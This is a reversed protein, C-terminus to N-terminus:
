THVATLFDTSTWPSLMNRGEKAFKNLKYVRGWRKGVLKWGEIQLSNKKYYLVYWGGRLVGTRLIVGKSAFRLTKLFFKSRM